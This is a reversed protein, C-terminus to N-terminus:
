RTGMRARPHGAAEVLVGAVHDADDDRLRSLTLRLHDRDTRTLFPTGPAAGIGRSALLVLAAREDEVAVWVNIGDGDPHDVGAATLAASLRRRREDYAHRAAALVAPTADDRLLHVLVLQLIRSSWGPGLLRRNAVADVVDGAGGVAALRLDPGLSKSFSRIHV